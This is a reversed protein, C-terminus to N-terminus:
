FKLIAGCLCFDMTLLIFQCSSPDGKALPARHKLMGLCLPLDPVRYRTTISRLSFSLVHYFSVNCPSFQFYKTLFQKVLRYSVELLPRTGKATIVYSRHCVQTEASSCLPGM